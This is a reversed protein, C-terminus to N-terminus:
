LRLITSSPPPSDPPSFAPVRSVAIVALSPAVQIAPPLFAVATATGVPSRHVDPLQFDQNCATSSAQHHHHQHCPPAASNCDEAACSALCQVAGFILVLTLLVALQVRRVAMM